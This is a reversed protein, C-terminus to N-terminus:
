PVLVSTNYSQVVVQKMRLGKPRVYCKWVLDLLMREKQASSMKQIAVLAESPNDFRINPFFAKNEM